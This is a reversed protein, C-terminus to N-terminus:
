TWLGAGEQINRRGGYTYYYQDKVGVRKLPISINHDAFIEAIISGLGGALLHEELTIVQHCGEISKLLLGADVPKLRYLDIVLIDSTKMLDLAKHVMNGTSIVCTEGRGICAFGLKPFHGAFYEITPLVERDLRVYVPDSSEYVVKALEGAMWSDSANWITMNPLARMIAIDETAHHTPGSDDYSFGAGVGVLTIPLNMACINVKIAEYCRLTVFPMIAYCFVKKGSLALGTAVTIMSQEAIGANVFQSPLNERWRDLSPAGMDASILIVDKDEKAIEYLAEFFADRQTKM